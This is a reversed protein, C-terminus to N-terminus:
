WEQDIPRAGEIAQHRSSTIPAHRDGSLTAAGAGLAGDGTSAAGAAGTGAHGM